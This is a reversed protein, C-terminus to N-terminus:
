CCLRLLIYGVLYFLGVWVWGMGYGCVVAEDVPGLVVQHRRAGPLVAGILNSSLDLGINHQEPRQM